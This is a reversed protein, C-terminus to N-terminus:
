FKTSMVLRLGGIANSPNSKSRFTTRCEDEQSTFDGGRLVRETGASPGTPNTQASSSYPGYWDSCWEPVNGSMDYLGLENPYKQKVLHYGYETQYEYPWDVQCNDYYWGVDWLYNGGAFNYGDSENGGRAAFEWEAETPM